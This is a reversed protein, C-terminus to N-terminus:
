GGRTRRCGGARVTARAAGRASIRARGPRDVSSERLVGTPNWFPAHMASRRTRRRLQREGPLIAPEHRNPHEIQNEAGPTRRVEVGRVRLPPKWGTDHHDPPPCLLNPIAAWVQGLTAGQPLSGSGLMAALQTFAGKRENGKDILTLRHLPPRQDLDAVHLGHGTLRYQENGTAVSVAAVARGAQSWAYFLLIPRSAYGVAGAARVLQECQELASGFVRRREAKAARGPPQSRLSRLRQWAVEIDVGNSLVGGDKWATGAGSPIFESGVLWIIPTM